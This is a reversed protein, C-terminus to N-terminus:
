KARKELSLQYASDCEELFRKREESDETQEREQMADLFADAAEGDLCMPEDEVFFEGDANKKVRM